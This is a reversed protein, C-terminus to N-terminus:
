KCLTVSENKQGLLELLQDIETKSLEAVHNRRLHCIALQICILPHLILRKLFESVRNNSSKADYAASIVRNEPYKNKFYKLINLTEDKIIKRWSTNQESSVGIGNEYWLVNRDFFMPCMGDLISLGYGSYDEMYRAISSAEIFYKKVIEKKIICAAGMLQNGFFFSTIGISSTKDGRYLEPWKPRNWSTLIKIKNSNFSYSIARGFLITPKVQYCYSMLDHLTSNDYILDGPSILFVFEESCCDLGDIINKITGVNEKHKVVLYNSFSKSEFYRDIEPSIDISSGDDAIIIEVSISNQSVISDLTRRLKIYDPNYVAVLVSIKM